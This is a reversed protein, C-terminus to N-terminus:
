DWIQLLLFQCTKLFVGLPFSLLLGMTGLGSTDTSFLGVTM